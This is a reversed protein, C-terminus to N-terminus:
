TPAARPAVRETVTIPPRERDPLCEGLEDGSPGGGGAEVRDTQSKMYLRMQHDNIHRGPM